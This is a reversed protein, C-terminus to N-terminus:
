ILSYTVGPAPLRSRSKWRGVSTEARAGRSTRPTPIRRSAAPDRRRTQTGSSRGRGTTNRVARVSEVHLRAHQYRLLEAEADSPRRQPAGPSSLGLHGHPGVAGHRLARQAVGELAGDPQVLQLHVTVQLLVVHTGKSDATKVALCRTWRRSTISNNFVRVAACYLVTCCPVARYLVVCCPVIRCPVTCCLIIYNLMTCCPIIRYLLTCCPVIRYLVTCCPVIGCYVTCYLAVYYLVTCFPVICCLVVCYLIVCCLVAYCLVVCCLLMLFLM